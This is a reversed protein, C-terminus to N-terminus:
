AKFGDIRNKLWDVWAAVGEGTTCSIPFFEADPNLIEIGRKFYDMKFDIYPLLDIKNLILADIGRYINPYKYPKDDGEPVSAVVVNFHTGLTFSAPCILNGVNEVILLDIEELSLQPLAGSLMVADLHCSGGTNIQVAPMGAALVKSADITVNATDGEIVGLKFHPALAEITKLILSTKGAGPSAMVNMGLVRAAELKERNQTALHDNASMIEQVVPVTKTM